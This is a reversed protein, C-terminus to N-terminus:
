AIVVGSSCLGCVKGYWARKGSPLARQLNVVSVCRARLRTGRKNLLDGEGLM